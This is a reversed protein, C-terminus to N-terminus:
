GKSVKKTRFKTSIMRIPSSGFFRIKGKREPMKYAVQHRPLLPLLEKREHTDFMKYYRPRWFIKASFLGGMKYGSCIEHTLENIDLTRYIPICSSFGFGLKRIFYLEQTNNRIKKDVDDYAQSYYIIDCGYHRHNSFFYKLEDTFKKFDRSDAENMAEDILILSDVFMYKGLDSFDIPFAGALSFNCYVKRGRKLARYCERAMHTSKGAGPLGFVCKIM